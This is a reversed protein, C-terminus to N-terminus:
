HSMLLETPSTQKGNIILKIADPNTGLSQTPSVLGLDVTYEIDTEIGYKSQKLFGANYWSKVIPMQPFAPGQMLIHYNGTKKGKTEGQVFRDATGKLNLRNSMGDKGIYTNIYLNEKNGLTTVMRNIDTNSLIIKTNLFPVNIDITKASFDFYDPSKLNFNKDFVSNFPTTVDIKEVKLFDFEKSNFMPQSCQLLDTKFNAIVANKKNLNFETKANLISCKAEGMAPVVTTITALEDKKTAITLESNLYLTTLNFEDIKFNNIFNRSQENDAKFFTKTYLPLIHTETNFIFETPKVSKSGVFKVQPEFKISIKGTKNFLSNKSDNYSVTVGKRNIKKITKQVQEDFLNSTVVQATGVAAFLVALSVGTFIYRKKM